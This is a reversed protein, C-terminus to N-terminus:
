AFHSDLGSHLRSPSTIKSGNKPHFQGRVSITNVGFNPLRFLASTHTVAPLSGNPLLEGPPMRYCAVETPFHETMRSSPQEVSLLRRSPRSSTLCSKDHRARLPRPTMIYTNPFLLCRLRKPTTNLDPYLYLGKADTIPISCNLM